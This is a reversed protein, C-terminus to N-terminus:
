DSQAETQRRSEHHRLAILAYARAATGLDNVSVSENPQHAQTNIEGPGLVVTPVAHHEAIFGGECSATWIGYDGSAGAERAAHRVTRTFGAEPETVFGPMQMEVEGSLRIRERGAIDSGAIVQRARDLLDDLVERAEEGPLLRRDIGLTATDPVISTGHGASLTGVNWTAAGLVPHPAAALRQSDRNLLSVLEAAAQIASAGDAPRGAHASAGTIRVRLNAAGRCGVIAVLDTPEAVVCGTYSGAPARQVYHGIGVADAEEDVTCVLTLPIQPAHTNIAAMAAIVAALGGKMDTAGRGILRGQQIRPTFADADWGAGAPVVDSHGLFLLGGGANGGGLHAVLNPRGPAVEHLQVAAGLDTLARRLVQVTREESGGPNEGGAAILEGALAVLREQDIDRLVAQEAQTPAPLKVNM